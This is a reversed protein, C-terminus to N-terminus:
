LTAEQAHREANQARREKLLTRLDAMLAPKAKTVCAKVADNTVEGKRVCKATAECLKADLKVLGTSQVPACSLRGKEDRAVSLSVSDLKRALVLIEAEEAADARAAGAALMLSLALTMSM